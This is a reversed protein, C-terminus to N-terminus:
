QYGTVGNTTTAYRETLFGSIYSGTLMGFGYTGLTIIGQAASKNSDSAKDDAYIQGTVFFIMVFVMYPLAQM